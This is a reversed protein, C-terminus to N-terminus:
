TPQLTVRRGSSHIDYSGLLQTDDEIPVQLIATLAHVLVAISIGRGRMESMSVIQFRGDTTSSAALKSARQPALLRLGKTPTKEAHIRLNFREALLQWLMGRAETTGVRVAPKADVDYRADSIWSPGGLVTYDPVGYALSILPKLTINRVSMGGTQLFGITGGMADSMSRGIKVSAVEYAGPNEQTEALCVVYLGLLAGAMLLGIRWGGTGGVPKNM